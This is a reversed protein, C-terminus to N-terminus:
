LYVSSKALREILDKIQPEVSSAVKVRRAGGWLKLRM